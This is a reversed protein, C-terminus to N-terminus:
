RVTNPSRRSASAFSARSGREYKSLWACPSRSERTVLSMSLMAVVSWCPSECSSVENRVTMPTSPIISHILGIRASIATPEMGNDNATVM